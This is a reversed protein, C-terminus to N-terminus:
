PKPVKINSFAKCDRIFSIESLRGYLLMCFTYKENEELLVFSYERRLYWLITTLGKECFLKHHFQNLRM